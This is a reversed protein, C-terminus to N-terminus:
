LLYCNPKNSTFGPNTDWILYCFSIHIFFYKKPSKSEASKQCFNQSYIFRGLFHKEFIQRESDLEFQLDRKKYIFKVCVTYTTHSVLDLIRVSPKYHGIIYTHIYIESLFEAMFINRLFRDNPTSTLCM